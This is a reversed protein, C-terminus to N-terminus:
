GGNVVRVSGITNTPLYCADVSEWVVCNRELHDTEQVALESETEWRGWHCFPRRMGIGSGFEIFWVKEESDVLLDIAAIRQGSKYVYGAEVRKRLFGVILASVEGVIFDAQREIGAVEIGTGIFVAPFVHTFDGVPGCKGSLHLNTLYAFPSSPVFDCGGGV